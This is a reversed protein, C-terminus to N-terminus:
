APSGSKREQLLGVVLDRMSFVGVLGGDEDVVMLHRFGKERMIRAAEVVETEGEVTLLKGTVIDAVTADGMPSDRAIVRL